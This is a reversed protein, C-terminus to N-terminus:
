RDFEHDCSTCYGQDRRILFLEGCESCERQEEIHGTQGTLDIIDNVRCIDGSLFRKVKKFHSRNNALEDYSTKITAGDARTVEYKQKETDVEGITALQNLQM